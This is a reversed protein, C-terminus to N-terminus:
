SGNRGISDREVRNTGSQWAGADCRGLAAGASVTIADVIWNLASTPIDDFDAPLPQKPAHRLKSVRRSADSPGSLALKGCRLQTGRERWLAGIRSGPSM